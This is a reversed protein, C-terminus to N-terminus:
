GAPPPSPIASPPTAGMRAKLAAGTGLIHSRLAATAAEGDRATAATAIAAHGARLERLAADDLPFLHRYRDTMNHLVACFQLLHPMGCGRILARHFEGHAAEWADLTAPRSADRELRNILYLARMIDGEWELDGRAIAAKLAIAELEARLTTVEELDAMSVPAVRYGRQDEFIVLGDAVLRSVAERLPSISIGHAARLRDLNIRAGPALEGRLISARLLDAVRSSITEKRAPDAM